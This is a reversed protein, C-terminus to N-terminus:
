CLCAEKKMGLNGKKKLFSIAEEGNKLHIIENLLHGSDKLTKIILRAHDPNDEVVLIYEVLVNMEETM